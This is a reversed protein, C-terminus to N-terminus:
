FRLTYGCSGPSLALGGLLKGPARNRVVVDGVALGVAAGFLVDSLYHHRDEMRGMGTATAMLAAAVGAQWGLHNTLVPVTSFAATTHGSPFSFGGGTPRRRNVSVKIIGTLVGSILYSRCLDGAFNTLAEDGALHGFGLMMLSGGGIAWGSGYSNGIDLTPEFASRDLVRQM